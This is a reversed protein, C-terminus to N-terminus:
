YICLFLGFTDILYLVCCMFLDVPCRSVSVNRRPNHISGYIAHVSYFMQACLDFMRAHMKKEWFAKGLLSSSKIRCGQGRSCHPPTGPSFCSLHACLGSAISEGARESFKKKLTRIKDTLPRTQPCVLWWQIGLYLQNLTNALRVAPYPLM